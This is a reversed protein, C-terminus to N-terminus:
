EGGQMAARDPWVSRKTVGDAITVGLPFIGFFSDIIDGMVDDGDDFEVVDLHKGKGKGFRAEILDVVEQKTMRVSTIDIKLAANEIAYMKM